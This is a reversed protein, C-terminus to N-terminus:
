AAFLRTQAVPFSDESSEDKESSVSGCIRGSQDPLSRSLQTPREECSVGHEALWEVLRPATHGTLLEYAKLRSKAEGGLVPPLPLGAIGQQIVFAVDEVGRRNRDFDTDSWTPLGRFAMYRRRQADTLNAREWAHALEHEYVFDVKSCISIQWVDSSPAFYGLAGHCEEESPDRFVILLSPVDLGAEEFRRLALNARARDTGIGGGATRESQRAWPLTSAGSVAIAATLIGAIVVNARLSCEM